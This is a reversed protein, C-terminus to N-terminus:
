FIMLEGVACFALAANIKRRGSSGTSSPLLQELFDVLVVVDCEGIAVIAAHLNKPNHRLFISEILTRQKAKSNSNM